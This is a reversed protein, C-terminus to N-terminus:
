GKSTDDEDFEACNDKFDCSHCRERSEFIQCKM